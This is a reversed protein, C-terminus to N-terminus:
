ESEDEIEKKRSNAKFKEEPIFNLLNVLYFSKWAKEKIDYIPIIDLNQYNEFIVQLTKQYKGPILRKDLTGFISRFRGNTRKKFVVKCIGKSLEQVINQNDKRSYM